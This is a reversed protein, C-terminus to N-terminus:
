PVGCRAKQSTQSRCKVKSRVARSSNMFVALLVVARGSPASYYTPSLPVWSKCRCLRSAGALATQLASHDEIARILGRLKPSKILQFAALVKLLRAEPLATHRSESPDRDFITQINVREIACLLLTMVTTPQM